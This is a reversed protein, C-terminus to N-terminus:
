GFPYISNFRFSDFIPYIFVFSDLVLSGAKVLFFGGVLVSWSFGSDKWFFCDESVVFFSSGFCVIFSDSAGYFTFTAYDTGGGIFFFYSGLSRLDRASYSASIGNFLWLYSSLSM